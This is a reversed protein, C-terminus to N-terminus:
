SRIGMGNQECAFYNASKKNSLRDIPTMMLRNWAWGLALAESTRRLVHTTPGAKRRPVLTM